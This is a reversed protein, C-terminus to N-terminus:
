QNYGISSVIVGISKSQHCGKYDVKNYIILYTSHDMVLLFMEKFFDGVMPVIEILYGDMSLFTRQIM